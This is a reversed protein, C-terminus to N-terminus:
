GEARKEGIYQIPHIKYKIENFTMEILIIPVHCSDKLIASGM